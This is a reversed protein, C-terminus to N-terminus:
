RIKRRLIFGAIGSPILSFLALTEPGTGPTTVVQPTQYVTQGGKTTGLVQKEVVKTVIIVQPTPTATIVINTPTATPNNTPTATPGNTPTLTPTATPGYTPTLTPTYSPNPTATPTPTHTPRYTPTPTKSPHRTPTPTHTPRHTPTPTKSPVRTPSATPVRTPTATPVRTPTATPIATPTPTPQEDCAPRDMVRRGDNVHDIGERPQLQGATQPVFTDFQFACHPVKINLTLKSNKGVVGYKVDYLEQQDPHNKSMIKFSAVGVNYACNKSENTIKAKGDKLDVEAYVRGKSRDYNQCIDQATATTTFNAIGLVASVLLISSILLRKNM